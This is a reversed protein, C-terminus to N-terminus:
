QAWRDQGDQGKQQGTGARVNGPRLSRRARRGERGRRIKAKGREAHETRQDEHQRKKQGPDPTEAIPLAEGRRVARACAEVDEFDFREAVALGEVDDGVLLLAEEERGGRRPDSEDSMQGLGFRPFERLDHRAEGLAQAM